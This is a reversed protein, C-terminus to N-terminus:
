YAHFFQFITHIGSHTTVITDTCIIILTAFPSITILVEGGAWGESREAIEWLALPSASYNLFYNQLDSKPSSVRGSDVPYAVSHQAIGWISHKCVKKNM